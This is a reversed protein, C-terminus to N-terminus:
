NKSQMVKRAAIRARAAEMRQGDIIAGSTKNRRIKTKGEGVPNEKDQDAGINVIQPPAHRSAILPKSGAATSSGSTATSQRTPSSSNTSRMTEKSSRDSAILIRSVRGLDAPQAMTDLTKAELATIPPTANFVADADEDDWMIKPANKVDQSARTARQTSVHTPKTDTSGGCKLLVNSSLLSLPLTPSSSTPANRTGAHRSTQLSDGGRREFAPSQIAPSGEIPSLLTPNYAGSQRESPKLVATDSVAVSPTISDSDTSSSSSRPQPDRMERASTTRRLQLDKPTKSEGRKNRLSGSPASLQDIIHHGQSKTSKITEMSRRPEADEGAAAWMAMSSEEQLGNEPVIKAPDFSDRFADPQVSDTRSAQHKSREAEAVAERDGLSRTEPRNLQRRMVALETTNRANEALQLRLKERLDRIEAELSAERRHRKAREIEMTRRENDLALKLEMAEEDKKKAFDKALRAKSILVKTEAESRESYSQFAERWYRGSDSRPNDFDMTQEHEDQDNVSKSRAHGRSRSTGLLEQAKTPPEYGENEPITREVRSKSLKRSKEERGKHKSSFPNSLKGPADNPDEISEPEVKRGENDMVQSGFTVQKRRGNVTGPTMLIGNPKTPSTPRASPGLNAWRSELPARITSESSGKRRISRAEDPMPTGYLAHKFAQVAFLAAAPTEPEELITTDHQQQQQQANGSATKLGNVWSFM